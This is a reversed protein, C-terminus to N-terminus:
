RDSRPDASLHPMSVPEPGQTLAPSNSDPGPCKECARNRLHLPIQMRWGSDLSLKPRMPFFALLLLPKCLSLGKSGNSYRPHIHSFNVM